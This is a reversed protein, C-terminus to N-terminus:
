FNMYFYILGCDHSVDLVVNDRGLLRSELTKNMSTGAHQLGCPKWKVSTDRLIDQGYYLGLIIVYYCSMVVHSQGWINKMVVRGSSEEYVLFRKMDNTQTLLWEEVLIIGLLGILCCCVYVHMYINSNIFMIWWSRTLCSICVHMCTYVYLCWCLWPWLM